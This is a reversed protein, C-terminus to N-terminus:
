GFLIAEARENGLIEFMTALHIGLQFTAMMRAIPNKSENIIKVLIKLYTQNARIQADMVAKYAQSALDWAKKIIENLDEFTFTIKDLEIINVEVKEPKYGKVEVM